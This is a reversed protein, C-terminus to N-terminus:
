IGLMVSGVRPSMDLPAIRCKSTKCGLVADFVVELKIPNTPPQLLHLFPLTGRTMGFLGCHVCRYFPLFLLCRGMQM